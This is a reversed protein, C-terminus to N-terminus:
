EHEKRGYNLEYEIGDALMGLLVEAYFGYLGCSIFNHVEIVCTLGSRVGIDLTYSKLEPMCENLRKVCDMIIDRKPFTLVDGLYNQVARVEGRHVFVRFESDFKVISSVSYNTDPELMNAIDNGLYLLNNFKKLHDVDKIFHKERFEKPMCLLEKGTYKSYLRGVFELLCDPVEIPTLAKDSAGLYNLAKRMFELDGIPIIQKTYKSKVKDIDSIDSIVHYSDLNRGAYVKLLKHLIKSDINYKDDLYASDMVFLRDM